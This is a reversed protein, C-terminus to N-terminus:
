KLICNADILNLTPTSVVSCRAVFKSLAPTQGSKLQESAAVVVSNFSSRVLWDKSLLYDPSFAEKELLFFDISYKQVIQKVQALNPSTQARVIAIAREKFRDYYRSHYAFAFERAVLVSRQTFAPLNDAEAAVSAIVIDKPQAALYEYLSTESGVHWNQSKLFVFPIAPIGLFLVLLVFVSGIKLSKQRNFRSNVQKKQQWWHWSSVLFKWLVIGAAIAMVFRLSHSTYRSPFYLEFLLLHALFFMGLSAVVVELLLSAKLARLKATSKLRLLGFSLWNVPLYLPTSLGSFGEVIFILFNLGFYPIRGQASFEPMQQMQAATVSIGLQASFNLSYPLLVAIALASGAVWFLYNRKERSFRLSREKFRFLRVTLIAVALLMVQPFFLGLLAISLLCPVLSRKVLYYLFAAFFPYVFARPTASILDDRLWINQNFILTALFAAAPIPLIELFLLFLYVTAVIALVTPLFKAFLMPAIGLKAALWYLFKYGVPAVAQFYDAILDNPFLQPDIFRQLWVIHQRADDQVIYPETLSYHLAIAGFYLPAIFSLGFYILFHPSRFRPLSKILAVISL